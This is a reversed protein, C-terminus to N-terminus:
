ESKAVHAAFGCFASAYCPKGQMLHQGRWLRLCRILFSLFTANLWKKSVRLSPGDTKEKINRM